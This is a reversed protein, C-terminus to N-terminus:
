DSSLSTFLGCGMWISFFSCIPDSSLGSHISSFGNILNTMWRLPLLLWQPLCLFFLESTVPFDAPSRRGNCAWLVPGRLCLFNRPPAPQTESGEPQAPLHQRVGQARSEAAFRPLIWVGGSEVGGDTLPCLTLAIPAHSHGGLNGFISGRLATEPGLVGDQLLQAWARLEQSPPAALSLGWWASACHYGPSQAM